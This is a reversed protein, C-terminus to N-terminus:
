NKALEQALKSLRSRLTNDVLRDGIRVKAGGMHEPKHQYHLVVEKNGSVRSLESKLQELQADDFASGAEVWAHVRNEAVDRHVIFADAINDFMPERGKIVLVKMFNVLEDCVKGRLAEDLGAIKIARPVRPSTFYDRYSKDEWAKRLLEIGENVPGTVGHELATEYLAAAYVRAVPDSQNTAM